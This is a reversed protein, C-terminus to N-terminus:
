TRTSERMPRKRTSSQLAVATGPSIMREDFQQANSAAALEALPDMSDDGLSFLSNYIAGSNASSTDLDEDGISSSFGPTSSWISERDLADAATGYDEFDMLSTSTDTPAKAPAAVWLKDLDVLQNLASAMLREGTSTAQKAIRLFREVDAQLLKDEFLEEDPLTYELSPSSSSGSAAGRASAYINENAQTGQTSGRILFLGNAALQVDKVQFCVVHGLRLDAEQTTAGSTESRDLCTWCDKERQYRGCMDEKGIAAHFIGFVRLAIHRAGFFVVRGYLRPPARSVTEGPSDTGIRGVPVFPTFVLADVHIHIHLFGRDTAWIDLMSEPSIWDRTQQSRERRTGQPPLAQLLVIAGQLIPDYRFLRRLLQRRIASFLAYDSRMVAPGLSLREELRVRKWLPSESLTRPLM